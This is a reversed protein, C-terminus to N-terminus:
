KEYQSKKSIVVSKDTKRSIAVSVVPIITQNTVYVIKWMHESECM